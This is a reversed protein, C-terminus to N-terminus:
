RRLISVSPEALPSSLYLELASVGFSFKATFEINQMIYAESDFKELLFLQKHVGKLTM